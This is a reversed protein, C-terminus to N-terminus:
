AAVREYEADGLAQRPRAIAAEHRDGERARMPLKSAAQAEAGFALAAAEFADLGTFDRAIRRITLWVNPEFGLSMWYEVQDLAADLDSSMARSGLKTRLEEAPTAASGYALRNDVTLSLEMVGELLELA